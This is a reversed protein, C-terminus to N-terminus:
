KMAPSRHAPPAPSGDPEAGGPPGPPGPPDELPRHDPGPRRYPVGRLYLRLAELHILGIVQLTMLPYRLAAAALARDTLPRREGALRAVFVREGDPTDVHMDIALSAGDAPADFWFEYFRPGHLFPSVFLERRHRFGVRAPAGSVRRADPASAIRQAPGLVYRYRGGYTNNVEAVVSTLAGGADYGLFFSVPNFVYGLVKLNTVLRASAPAPLGHEALLRAHDAVLGGGSVASGAAYDRDDLSFLNPRAHSFLRLERTLAPLEDLDISAIYVPYRFTRRALEDRRAHMLTGRYLASRRPSTM